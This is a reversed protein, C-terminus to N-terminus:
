LRLWQQLTNGSLRNFAISAADVWDDHVGLPFAGIEQLLPRNWQARLLAVNGASFQSAL